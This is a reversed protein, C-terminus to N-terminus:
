GPNIKNQHVQVKSDHKTGLKKVSVTRIKWQWFKGDFRRERSDLMASRAYKDMKGSIESIETIKDEKKSM